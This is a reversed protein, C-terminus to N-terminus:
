QASGEKVKVVGNEDPLTLEPKLAIGHAFINTIDSAAITTMKSLSLLNSDFGFEEADRTKDKIVIPDATPKFTSKGTLDITMM